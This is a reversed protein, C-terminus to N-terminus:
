YANNLHKLAPFSHDSESNAASNFSPHKKIALIVKHSIQKHSPDASYTHQGAERDLQHSALKELTHSDTNAHSAIAHHLDDTRRLTEHINDEHSHQYGQNTLKRLTSSDADPHKAVALNIANSQRAHNSIIGNLVSPHASKIASIKQEETSKPHNLIGHVLHYNEERTTNPNKLQSVAKKITSEPASGNHSNFRRADLGTIHNFKDKITQGLGENLPTYASNVFKTYSNM